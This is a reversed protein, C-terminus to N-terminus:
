IRILYIIGGIGMELNPNGPNRVGVIRLTMEMIFFRAMLFPITGMTKSINLFVLQELLMKRLM